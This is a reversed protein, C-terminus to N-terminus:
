IANTQICPLFWIEQPPVGRSIMTAAISESILGSLFWDKAAATVPGGVWWQVDTVSVEDYSTPNSSGSHTVANFTANMFGCVGVFLAVGVTVAYVAGM